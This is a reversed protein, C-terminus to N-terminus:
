IHIQKSSKRYYGHQQSYLKISPVLTIYNYYRIVKYYVDIHIGAQAFM